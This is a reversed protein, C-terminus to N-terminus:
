KLVGLWNTTDDSLKKADINGTYIGTMVDSVNRIKQIRRVSDMFQYITLDWVTHHDYKFQECNVMASVLPALVPKYEDNKRRELEKRAKKILYRKTSENGAKDVRKSLGHFERLYSTITTYVVENIFDGTKENYLSLLGTENNQVIHFDEFKMGPFIISIDTDHLTSWMMLFFEFDGVEEYDINFQDYLISKYDSPTSCLTTILGYYEGEGMDRIESLKPHHMVIHPSVEVDIGSLLKLEDVRM